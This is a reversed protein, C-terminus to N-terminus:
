NFYFTYFEDVWRRSKEIYEERREPDYVGDKLFCGGGSVRQVISKELDSDDSIDIKPVSPLYFLNKVGSILAM